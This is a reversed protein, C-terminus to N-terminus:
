VAYFLHNYSLIQLFLGLSTAWVLFMEVKGPNAHCKAGLSGAAEKTIMLPVIVVFPAKYLENSFRLCFPETAHVIGAQDSM